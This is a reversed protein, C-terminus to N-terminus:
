VHARRARERGARRANGRVERLDHHMTDARVRDTLLALAEDAVRDPTCEDQILDPVVRRGAILNPMGFTDVKM